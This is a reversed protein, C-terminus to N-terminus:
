FYTLLQSFIRNFLSRDVTIVEITAAMHPKYPITKNSITIISDPVSVIIEYSTTENILEPISNIEKVESQVLGYEKYPYSDFKILVKQGVAVKGSGKVPLYASIYKGSQELPVIYGLIDENNIRKNLYHGLKFKIIGDINARIISQLERDTINAKINSSLEEILFQFGQIKDLRQKKLEVMKTKLQQIKIESRILNKKGQKNENVRRLWNVKINEFEQSSIVGESELYESREYDKTILNLQISDIKNEEKIENYLLKEAEIENEISNLQQFVSGNNLTQILQRYTLQLQAYYTQTEGLNLNDPFELNLYEVPDNIQFYKDMWALILELQNYSDNNSILMIKDNTSVLSDNQVYIEKILGNSQSIIPVPLEEALLTGSGVIKDPYEIYFTCILLVSFFGAILGIGSNLLWGPPNNIIEELLIVQKSENNREEM